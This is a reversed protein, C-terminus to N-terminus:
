SEELTTGPFHCFQPTLHWIEELGATMLRAGLERAVILM